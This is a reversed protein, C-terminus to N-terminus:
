VGAVVEDLTRRQGATKSSRDATGALYVGAAGSAPDRTGSFLALDDGYADANTWVTGTRAPNANM